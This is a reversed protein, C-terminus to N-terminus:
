TRKWDLTFPLNVWPYRRSMLVLLTPLAFASSLALVAALPGPDGIATGVVKRLLIMVPAHMVYFYISNRGIFVLAKRNFLRPAIRFLLLFSGLILPAIAPTWGNSPALACFVVVGIGASVGLIQSAPMSLIQFLGIRGSTKIGAFYFIFYFPIDSVNVFGRDIPTPAKAFYLSLMIATPFVVWASIRNLAYGLCSFLFLVALFWVVHAFGYLSPLLNENIATPRACLMVTAWILYPWLLTRAKSRLFPAAARAGGLAGTALLGSIFFLLSLQYGIQSLLVTKLASLAPSHGIDGGFYIFFHCLVIWAVAFGRLGDLWNQRKTFDFQSQISM